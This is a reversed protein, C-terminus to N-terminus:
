RSSYSAVCNGVATVFRVYVTTSGPLTGSSGDCYALGDGDNDIGNCGKQGYDTPDVFVTEFGMGPTPPSFHVIFTITVSKDVPVTSPDINCSDVVIPESETATPPPLETATPPPLETATPQPLETATPPPVKTATPRPRKTPPIPTITYYAPTPTPSPFPAQTQTPLIPKQTEAAMLTAIQTLTPYPTYSPTPTQDQINISYSTATVLTKEIPLIPSSGTPLAMLGFFTDSGKQIFLYGAICAVVLLLRIGIGALTFSLHKDIKITKKSQKIPIQKELQGINESLDQSQQPIIPASIIKSELKGLYNKLSHEPHSTIKEFVFRIPSFGINKISVIQDSDKLVWTGGWKLRMYEGLYSGWIIAADSIVGREGEDKANNYFGWYVLGLLNELKDISPESYDLELGFRLKAAKIAEEAHAKMEDNITSM